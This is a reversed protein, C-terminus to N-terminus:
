NRTENNNSSLVMITSYSTTHYTYHFYCLWESRKQMAARELVALVIM